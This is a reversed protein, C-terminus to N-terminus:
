VCSFIRVHYDVGVGHLTARGIKLQFRVGIVLIDACFM